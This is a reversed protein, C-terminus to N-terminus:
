QSQLSRLALLIIFFQIKTTTVNEYYFFITFTFNLIFLFIDILVLQIFANEEVFYKILLKEIM